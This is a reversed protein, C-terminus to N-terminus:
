RASVVARIHARRRAIGSAVLGTPGHLEFHVQADPQTQFTLRLPDGPMVTHHFKVMNLHWCADEAHQSQEIVYLTEDLLVVGPVIPLGPFHGALSPHDHPIHLVVSQQTM